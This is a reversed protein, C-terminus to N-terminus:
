ELSTMNSMPPLPIGLTQSYKWGIVGASLSMALITFLFMSCSQCLTRYVTLEATRNLRNFTIIGKTKDVLGVGRDRTRMYVQGLKELEIEWVRSSSPQQFDPVIPQSLLWPVTLCVVRMHQCFVLFWPVGLLLTVIAWPWGIFPPVFLEPIIMALYVFFALRMFPIYFFRNLKKGPVFPDSVQIIRNTLVYVNSKSVLPVCTRKRTADGRTGNAEIEDLSHISNISNNSLIPQNESMGTLCIYVFDCFIGCYLLERDGCGGICWNYQAHTHHTHM